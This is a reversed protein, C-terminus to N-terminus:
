LLLHDNVEAHIPSGQQCQSHTSLRHEAAPSECYVTTMAWTVFAINYPSRDYWVWYHYNFSGTPVCSVAAAPWDGTMFLIPVTLIRLTILSPSPGM